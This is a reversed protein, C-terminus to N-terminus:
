KYQVSYVLAKAIIQCLSSFFSGDTLWGTSHFVVYKFIACTCGLSLCFSVVLCERNWDVTLRACRHPLSSSFITARCESYLVTHSGFPLVLCLTISASHAHLPFSLSHVVFWVIQWGIAFIESIIYFIHLACMQRPEWLVTRRIRSSVRAIHFHWGNYIVILVHLNRTKDMHIENTHPESKIQTPRAAEQQMKNQTTKESRTEDVPKPIKDRKKLINKSNRCITTTTTPRRRTWRTNHSM